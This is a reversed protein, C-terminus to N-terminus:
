WLGIKRLAVELRNRLGADDLSFVVPMSRFMFITADENTGVPLPIQAAMALAIPHCPHSPIYRGDVVPSFGIEILHLISAATEATYPL